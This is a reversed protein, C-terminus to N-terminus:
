GCIARVVSAMAGAQEQMSRLLSFQREARHLNDGANAVAFYQDGDLHDTLFRLGLEYTILEGAVALHSCETPTLTSGVGALYGEVVAEFRALDLRLTAGGGEEGGVSAASRVLDGVDHLAFGPMVTDLDVVCLPEGSSADFLVNDLKCDNHVVRLPLDGETQLRGITEALHANDRAHAMTTACATARRHVDSRAAREFARYRAPTDHFAPITFALRENRLSAVAHLFEGFAGAGARVQRLTPERPTVAGEIFRYLRWYDGARTRYLAEGTGSLRLTLCRRPSEDNMKVRQQAALHETVLLTNRGLAEVDAFVHTNIRQALWADGNVELRYTHHIRGRGFPRLRARAGAFAYAELLEQLLESSVEPAVPPASM